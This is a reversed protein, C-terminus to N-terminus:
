AANLIALRAALKKDALAKMEKARADELEFDRNYYWNGHQDGATTACIKEIIGLPVGRATLVQSLLLSDSYMEKAVDTCWVYFADLTTLQLEPMERQLHGRIDGRERPLMNGWMGDTNGIGVMRCEMKVPCDRCVRQCAALARLDTPAPFWDIDGHTGRCAAQDRWGSM